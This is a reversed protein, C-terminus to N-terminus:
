HKADSGSKAAAAEAKAAELRAKANTLAERVEDSENWNKLAKNVAKLASPDAIAQLALAAQIRVMPDKDKWVAAALQPHATRLHEGLRRAAESRIYASPSNVLKELEQVPDYFDFAVPDWAFVEEIRSVKASPADAERVGLYHEFEERKMWPYTKLVVARRIKQDHKFTLTEQLHLAQGQFKATRYGDEIEQFGLRLRGVEDYKFISCVRAHGYVDDKIIHHVQWFRIDDGLIDPFEQSFGQVPDTDFVFVQRARWYAEGNGEQRLLVAYWENQGRVPMTIIALKRRELSLFQTTAEFPAVLEPMVPEGDVMVAKIGLADLVRAHAIADSSRLNMLADELKLMPRDGELTWTRFGPQVLVDPLPDLARASVALGLLAILLAASRKM